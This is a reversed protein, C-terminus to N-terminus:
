RDKEVRIKSDVSTVGKVSRAIAVAKDVEEQSRATGSLQVIGNNDTDVKIHLLSVKQDTAIKAKIQTTIASDKVWQQPNSRDQDGDAAAQTVAPAALAGLLAFSILAHSKM